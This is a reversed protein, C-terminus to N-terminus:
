HLVSNKKFEGKNNNEVNVVVSLTERNNCCMNFIDVMVHAHQWNNRGENNSICADWKIELVLPPKM